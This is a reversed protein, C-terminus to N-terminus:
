QTTKTAKSTPSPPIQSWCDCPTLYKTSLAASIRQLLGANDSVITLPPLTFPLEFFVLLHFILRLNALLGYGEARFSRPTHGYAQGRTETLITDDTAIISGYSGVTAVAGGDSCFVLPHM